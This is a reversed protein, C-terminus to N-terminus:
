SGHLSNYDIAHTSKGERCLVFLVALITTRKNETRPLPSSGGGEFPGAGLAPADVM